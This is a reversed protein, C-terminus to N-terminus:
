DDVYLHIDTPASPYEENADGVEIAGNGIAVEAHMIKGDPTPVRLREEGGFAAKLFEIFEPARNIVIYPTISTIGPRLYYAGKTEKSVTAAAGESMASRRQLDTKLAARFEDRPLYRLERAVSLLAPLDRHPAAEPRPQLSVLMAQVVEEVQDALTRKPLRKPM